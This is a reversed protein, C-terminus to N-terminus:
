PIESNYVNTAIYSYISSRKNVKMSLVEQVHLKNTMAHQQLRESAAVSFTVGVYHTLETTCIGHEQQCEGDHHEVGVEV